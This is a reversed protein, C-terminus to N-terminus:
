PVRRYDIRPIESGQQYSLVARETLDRPQSGYPRPRRHYRSRPMARYGTVRGEIGTRVSPRVDVPREVPSSPLRISKIDPLKIGTQEHFAAYANWATIATDYGRQTGYESRVPERFVRDISLRGSGGVLNGYNGDSM